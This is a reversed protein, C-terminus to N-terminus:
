KSNNDKDTFISFTVEFFGKIILLVIFLPYFLIWACGAQMSTKSDLGNVSLFVGIFLYLVVCTAIATGTM